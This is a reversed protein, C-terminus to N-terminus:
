VLASAGIALAGSIIGIIEADAADAMNVAGIGAKLIMNDREAELAELYGPQDVINALHLMREHAYERLGTTVIQKGLRQGAETLLREFEEGVNM